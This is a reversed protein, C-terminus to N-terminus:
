VDKGISDFADKSAKRQLAQVVSTKNAKSLLLGEIEERSVKNCMTLKLEDLQQQLLHPAINEKENV